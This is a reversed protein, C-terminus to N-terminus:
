LHSGQAEVLSNITAGAAELIMRLSALIVLLTALLRARLQFRTLHATM